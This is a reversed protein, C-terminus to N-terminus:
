PQPPKKVKPPEQTLSEPDTRFTSAPLGDKNWLNGESINTFGYRVAVPAAIQDSTVVIM